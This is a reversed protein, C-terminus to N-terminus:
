QSLSRLYRIISTRTKVNQVGPLEMRTGPFLKKPATIFKDIIAENWVIGSKGLDESYEFGAMSAAKRGVVGYPNLTLGYLDPEGGHDYNHCPTCTTEFLKKDEALNQAQCADSQCLIAAYFVAAQLVTKRLMSPNPGM